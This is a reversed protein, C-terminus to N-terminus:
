AYVNVDLIDFFIDAIIDSGDKLGSLIDDLKSKEVINETVPALFDDDKLENEITEVIALYFKYIKKGDSFNISDEEFKNYLSEWKRYNKQYEQYMDAEKLTKHEGFEFDPLIKTPDEIIDKCGSYIKDVADVVDLTKSTYKLVKTVGSEGNVKEEAEVAETLGDVGVYPSALDLAKGSLGANGAMLAVAAVGVGVLGSLNSGCAMCDNVLDYTLSIVGETLGVYPGKTAVSEIMKVPATVLDVAANVISNATGKVAEWALKKEEYALDEKYDKEIKGDVTALDSNINQLERKIESASIIQFDPQIMTSLLSIKKNYLEQHKILNKIKKSYRSDIQNVNEFIEEIEQRTTNNMDLVAKQYKSTGAITSYLDLVHALKAVYLLCDSIADGLSDADLSVQDIQKLLREKTEDTFDRVPM